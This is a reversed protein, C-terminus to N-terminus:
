NATLRFPSTCLHPRPLEAYQYAASGCVENESARAPLSFPQCPQSPSSCQMRWSRTPAHGSPLGSIKLAANVMMVRTDGCM